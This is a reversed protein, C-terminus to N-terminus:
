LESGLSDGHTNWDFVGASYHEACHRYDPEKQRRNQSKAPFGRKGAAYAEACVALRFCGGNRGKETKRLGYPKWCTGYEKTRGVM